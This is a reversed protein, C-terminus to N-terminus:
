PASPWRWLSQHRGGPWTASLAFAMTAMGGTSWLAYPPFLGLGLTISFAVGMAMGFDQRLTRFVLYLLLSGCAFSLMPAWFTVDLRLYVLYLLLSGCAFSLMPAWFTVDLRLYEVLACVAVWLFNSDGEEPQQYGVNYRLGYGMAWNKAYRFSIFADDNNYWFRYTLLSYPIWAVVFAIWDRRSERQAHGHNM